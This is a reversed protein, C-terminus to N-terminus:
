FINTVIGACTIIIAILLYIKLLPTFLMSPVAKKYHQYDSKFIKKLLTKEEVYANVYQAIIVLIIVGIGWFTRTPLFISTNIIIFIGYMPHRTTAYYGTTLLKEPTRAERNQVSHNQATIKILNTVGYNFFILGITFYVIDIPQLGINSWRFLLNNTPWLLQFDFYTVGKKLFCYILVYLISFTVFKLVTKFHM